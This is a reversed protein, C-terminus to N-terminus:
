LLGFVAPAFGDPAIPCNVLAGFGEDFCPPACNSNARLAIAVLAEALFRGLEGRTSNVGFGSLAWGGGGARPLTLSADGYGPPANAIVRGEIVASMGAVLASFRM